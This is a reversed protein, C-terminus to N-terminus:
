DKVTETSEKKEIKEAKKANKKAIKQIKDVVDKHKGAQKKHAKALKKYGKVESKDYFDADKLAKAQKKVEKAKNKHATFAEMHEDTTFGDMAKKFEGKGTLGISKDTSTKGIEGLGKEFIGKKISKDVVNDKAVTKKIKPVKTKKATKVWTGDEAKEFKRGDSYSHVAKEIVVQKRGAKVIDLEATAKDFLDQGIKGSALNDQLSKEIQEITPIMKGTTPQAFGRMINSGQYDNISIGTM